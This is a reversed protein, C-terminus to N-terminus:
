KPVLLRPAWGLAGVLSRRQRLLATTFRKAKSSPRVRSFLIGRSQLSVLWSERLHRQRITGSCLSVMPRTLHRRIRLQSLTLWRVLILQKRDSAFKPTNQAMARQTTKVGLSRKSTTITPRWCSRTTDLRSGPPTPWPLRAKLLTGNSDSTSTSRQPGRLLCTWLHQYGINLVIAPAPSPRRIRCALSTRCSRNLQSRLRPVSCWALLQWQWQVCQSRESRGM